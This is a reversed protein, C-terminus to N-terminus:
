NSVLNGEMEISKEDSIERWRRFQIDRWLSECLDGEM